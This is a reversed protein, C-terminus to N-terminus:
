GTTHVLRTVTHSRLLPKLLSHGQVPPPSAKSFLFPPCHSLFRRTPVQQTVICSYCYTGTRPPASPKSISRSEHLNELAVTNYRSNASLCGTLKQPRNKIKSNKQFFSLNIIRLNTLYLLVGPKNGCQLSM